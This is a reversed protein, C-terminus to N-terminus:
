LTMNRRKIEEWEEVSVSSRGFSRSDSDPWPRPYPSPTGRATNIAKTLDFLSRLTMDARTIPYEWGSVSACVHSSTDAALVYALRIAEGWSM